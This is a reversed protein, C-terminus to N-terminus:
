TQLTMTQLHCWNARNIIVIKIRYHDAKITNWADQNNHSYFNNYIYSHIKVLSFQIHSNFYISLKIVTNNIELWHLSPRSTITQSYFHSYSHKILCFKCYYLLLFFAFNPTWRILLTAFFLSSHINFSLPSFVNTSM